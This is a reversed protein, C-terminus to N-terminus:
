ISTHHSKCLFLVMSLLRLFDNRRSSPTRLQRGIDFFLLKALAGDDATRNKESFIEEPMLHYKRINKMMRDGYIIKNAKNLDAELLLISRLKTVLRSGAKKELMCALGRQWRSLSIGRMLALSIKVAHYNSIYESEAGAIYHGFHFGSISSSTAEKSRRWSSAWTVEDILTEVSNMPVLSRIKAIQQFLQNTAEHYDDSFEYTGDLVARAAVTDANYGFQGRLRGKCIPAEEAQYFRKGEGHINELIAKEVTDKTDYEVVNGNGTEVQVTRISGGFRKGLNYNLKRWFRRDREGKIIALIRKEAAEDGKKKAIDLRRNLHKKRNTAM